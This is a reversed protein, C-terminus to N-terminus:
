SKEFFFKAARSPKAACDVAEVEFPFEAKEDALKPIAWCEGVDSRITASGAASAASTWKASAEGCKQLEVVARKAGRSVGVCLDPAGDIRLEGGARVFRNASGDPPCTNLTLPTGESWKMGKPAVCSQSAGPYDPYIMEGKPQAAIAAAQRAKPLDRACIETTANVWCAGKRTLAGLPSHAHTAKPDENWTADATKGSVNVYVFYTKDFLRFSGDPDAEFNCQGDIYTKGKVVLKCQAPRAAAAAAGATLVASAALAAVIPYPKM